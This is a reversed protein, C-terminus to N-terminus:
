IPRVVVLASVAVDYLAHLCFYVGGFAPKVRYVVRSGEVSAHAVRGREKGAGEIAWGDGRRTLTMRSRERWWQNVERPLALWTKGLSKLKALHGLLQKYTELARRELLYDPHVIFNALGHKEAIAALQQKWVDISYQKLIHFLSYDQTTTTPLELTDGVFFPMVTCCGGRQAELHGVNPASMDYAFDLQRLWEMNRYLVAARFGIAGYDWAYRNIREARRKFLQDNSFLRGDHNLDHVGIEFGRSRIRHLLDRPVTYRGEPVIQFASKIGFADDVDMLRDCYDRGRSTEVDHTVIACSHAGDPWFWIFPMRDASQAKLSLALQMEFIQEVTSDVPWRPFPIERWDKLYARQLTIRATKPLLPRALYYAQRLASWVARAQRHRNPGSLYREHRLNAVVESPHFPLQLVSGASLVDQLVDYLDDTVRPARFGASCQGYGIAHPGFRFYGSETSPGGTVMVHAFSDPCRYHEFFAKDIFSDAGPQHAVTNPMHAM